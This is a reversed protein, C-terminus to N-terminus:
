GENNRFILKAIGLVYLTYSNPTLTNFTNPYKSLFDKLLLPNLNEFVREEGYPKDSPNELEFKYAAQLFENFDTINNM